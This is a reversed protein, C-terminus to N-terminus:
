EGGGGGGAPDLGPGVPKCGARTGAGVTDGGLGGVPPLVGLMRLGTEPLGEGVGTPGMGVTGRDLGSGTGVAFVGVGVIGGVAVGLLVGNVNVKVGVPGTVDGPLGVTEGLLGLLEDPTVDGALM